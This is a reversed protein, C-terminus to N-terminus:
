TSPFEGDVSEKFSRIKYFKPFVLFFIVWYVRRITPRAMRSPIVLVPSTMKLSSAASPIDEELVSGVEKGHLLIQRSVRNFCSRKGSGSFFSDYDFVV